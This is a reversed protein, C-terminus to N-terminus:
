SEGEAHANHVSVVLDMRRRLEKCYAAEASALTRAQRWRWPRWRAQARRARHWRHMKGHIVTLLELLLPAPITDIDAAAEEPGWPADLDMAVATVPIM